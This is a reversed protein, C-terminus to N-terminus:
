ESEDCDVLTAAREPVDGSVAATLGNLNSNVYLAEFWHTVAHGHPTEGPFDFSKDNLASSGPKSPSLM